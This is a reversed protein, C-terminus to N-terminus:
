RQLMVQQPPKLHSSGVFGDRVQAEIDKVAGPGHPVMIASSNPSNAYDKLTDIYQTTIMMHMADQPSLGGQSMSQMSDRFGDAMAKRMRAIGQGALFKSEADAEAEKVKLVKQAEGQEMAAQRQRRSANIANMADLVSREPRLDTLLINTIEYGHPEMAAKVAQMIARTVKDKAEYAADLDMSPLTSRLVDDIHAHIQAEPNIIEFVAQRVMRKMIRYQVATSVNLTVNDKTKCETNGQSQMLALSVTSISSFPPCFCALGPEVYGQFKGFCQVVGVSGTPVCIPCLGLSTMSQAQEMLPMDYGDSDSMKSAGSGVCITIISLSL